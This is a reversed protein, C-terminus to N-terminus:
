KGFTISKVKEIVTIVYSMFMDNHSFARILYMFNSFIFGYETKQEDTLKAVESDFEDAFASLSEFGKSMKSMLEASIQPTFATVGLVISGNSAYEKTDKMSARIKKKEEDSKKDIQIELVVSDVFARKFNNDLVLGMFVFALNSMLYDACEFSVTRDDPTMGSGHAMALNQAIVDDNLYSFNKVMGKLMNVFTDIMDKEANQQAPIKKAPMQQPTIQRVPAPQPAYPKAVSPQVAPRAQMGAAPRPNMQNSPRPNMAGLTKGNAM